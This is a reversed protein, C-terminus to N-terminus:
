SKHSELWNLIVRYDEASGAAVTNYREPTTDTKSSASFKSYPFTGVGPVTISDHIQFGSYSYFARIESPDTNVYLDTDADSFNNYNLVSNYDLWIIPIGSENTDTEIGEGSTVIIDEAAFAIIEFEPRQMKM